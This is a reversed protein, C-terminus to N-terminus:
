SFSPSYKPRKISKASQEYEASKNEKNERWHASLQESPDDSSAINGFKCEKEKGEV